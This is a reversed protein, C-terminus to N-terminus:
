PNLPIRSPFIADFLFLHHSKQFYSDIFSNKILTFFFSDQKFFIKKSLKKNIHQYITTLIMKFQQM